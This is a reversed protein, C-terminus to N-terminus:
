CLRMEMHILTNELLNFEKGHQSTDPIFEGESEKKGNNYYFIWHGSPMGDLYYGECVKKGEDNGRLYAGNPKGNSYNMESYVKENNFLTLWHVIYGNEFKVIDIFTQDTYKVEGTLENGTKYILKETPRLAITDYKFAIINTQGMVKFFAIEIVFIIIATKM